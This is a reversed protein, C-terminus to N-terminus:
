KFPVGKIHIREKRVTQDLLSVCSYLARLTPVNIKTWEALEIVVGLLGEVETPKGAEIDQFPTKLDALLHEVCENLSLTRLCPILKQDSLCGM